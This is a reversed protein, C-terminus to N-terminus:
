GAGAGAGSPNPPGHFARGGALPRTFIPGAFPVTTTTPPPPTPAPPPLPTTTTPPPAIPGSTYLANMSAAPPGSAIMRSTGLAPPPSVTSALVPCDHRALPAFFTTTSNVFSRLTPSLSENVAIM